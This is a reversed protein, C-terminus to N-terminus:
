WLATDVFKKALLRVQDYSLLEGVSLNYHCNAHMGHMLRAYGPVAIFCLATEM